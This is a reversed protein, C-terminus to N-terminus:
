HLHKTFMKSLVVEKNMRMIYSPHYAPVIWANPHMCPIAWGVWKSVEEIDEDWITGLLSQVAVEGLLLIVNPKLKKITRLLNPRCADIMEDTPKKNELPRCILANTKWADLDLDVNMRKLPRRLRQGAKGILQTYKIGKLAARDEQKGPAEAVALIKMRGEGTPPMKPSLCTKYLGCLGCKAIQSVKPQSRLKSSSFFGKSM